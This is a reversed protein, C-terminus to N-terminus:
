SHRREALLWVLKEVESKLQAQNAELTATQRQLSAVQSKLDVELRHDPALARRFLYVVAALTGAMIGLIFLIVVM